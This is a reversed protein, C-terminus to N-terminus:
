PSPVTMADIKRLVIDDEDVGELTSGLEQHVVAHGVSDPELVVGGQGVRGGICVRGPHGGGHSISHLLHMAGDPPGVLYTM